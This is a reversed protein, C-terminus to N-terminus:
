SGSNLYFYSFIILILRRRCEKPKLGLFDFNSVEYTNMVIIKNPHYEEM